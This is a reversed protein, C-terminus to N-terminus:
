TGPLSRAIRIAEDRGDDTEIRVTVSGVELLLTGEASYREARAPMDGLVLAVEHPGAVWLARHEGVQVEEVLVEAAFKEIVPESALAGELQTLLLGGDWRLWVVPAAPRDDLWVEDPPGLGQPLIPTFGALAPLDALDVPRGHDVPVAPTMPRPERRVAVGGVGLWDAVAPAAVVGAGAFVVAALWRWWRRGSWRSTEPLSAVRAAVARVLGEGVPVDLHRGLDTLRRELDTM